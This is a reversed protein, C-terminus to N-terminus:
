AAKEGAARLFPSCIEVVKNCQEVTFLGIHCDKREIGMQGALWKYGKGRAHGKRLNDRRMRAMWLPDFAAHAAMKARRLEANALRGLPKHTGKHVGVWAECPWCIFVPGFNTGRYIPSSDQILTAPKGCYPCLIASM